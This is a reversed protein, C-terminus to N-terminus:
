LLGLFVIDRMLHQAGAASRGKSMDQLNDSISKKVRIRPNFSFIILPIRNKVQKSPGIFYKFREKTSDESYGDGNEHLFHVPSM